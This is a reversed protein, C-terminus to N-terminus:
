KPAGGIIWERVAEIDLTELATALPMRDGVRPRDSVLKEFLYSRDLDGPSVLPEDVETSAVGVLEDFARGPELNLGGAGDGVHCNALACSGDFIPQIEDTLRPVAPLTPAISGDLEVLV